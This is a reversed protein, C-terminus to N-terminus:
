DKQIRRARDFIRDLIQGICVLLLFPVLRVGVLSMQPVSPLHQNRELAAWKHEVDDGWNTTLLFDLFDRRSRYRIFSIFEWDTPEFDGTSGLTTIPTVSILPHSARILIEPGVKTQYIREIQRSTAGPDVPRGDRYAPKERYKNLNVAVYEKGDDTSAFERIKQVRESNGNKGALSVYHEVEDPTMPNGNGGYWFHFTAYILAIVMWRVLSPNIM